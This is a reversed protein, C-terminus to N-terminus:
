FKPYHDEGPENAFPTDFFNSLNICYVWVTCTFGGCTTKLENVSDNFLFSLLTQANKKIAFYHAEIVM